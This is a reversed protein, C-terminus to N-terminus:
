GGQCWAGRDSGAAGTEAHSGPDVQDGGLGLGADPAIEDAAPLDDPQGPDGGEGAEDEPEDRDALRREEHCDIAVEDRGLLDLRGTGREVRGPGHEDERDDDADQERDAPDATGQRHDILQLSAAHDAVPPAIM